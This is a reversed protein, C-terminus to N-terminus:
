KIGAKQLAESVVCIKCTHSNLYGAQINNCCRSGVEFARCVAPRKEYITCKGDVNAICRQHDDTRMIRDYKRDPDEWVLSDDYFIEDTSYVDIIGQCCKGKCEDCKSDM